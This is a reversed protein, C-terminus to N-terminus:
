SLVVVFDILQKTKEGPEVQEVQEVHDLLDAALRQAKPVDGEVLATLVASQMRVVTASAEGPQLVLEAASPLPSVTAPM